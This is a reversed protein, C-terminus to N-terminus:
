FILVYETDLGAGSGGILLAASFTHLQVVSASWRAMHWKPVLTTDLSQSLVELSVVTAEHDHM